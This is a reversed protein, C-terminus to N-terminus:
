LVTAGMRVTQVSDALTPADHAQRLRGICPQCRLAAEKNEGCSEIESENQAAFTRIKGIGALSKKM